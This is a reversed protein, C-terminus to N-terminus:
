NCDPLNHGAYYSLGYRWSRNDRPICTVSNMRWFARPSVTRDLVPFTQWAIRVVGVTVGIAILAIAFERRGFFELAGCLIAFLLFPLVFGLPYHVSTRSLGNLLAQPLIDQVTPMLWLLSACAALALATIRSRVQAEALAIGILAALPPLLPLLYGPLKNLAISFLVLGWLFWALLFRNSRRSLLFLLPTWPFFAALLVPVYFWVPRVHVLSPSVIRAFHHKWFFEDIFASGNRATVVVYWPAAIVLASGLVIMLDRLRHRMWGLAPVFLALPVLGKALVALGLLIGALWVSGRSYPIPPLLLLMCAGFTAALPLDPVAVHSYALWGASTGLVITSFCAARQGFERRLVFFFFVLFAVSMLAVPLRPALDENLGGKLGTGIMWYLLPPKEFWAEGWLRPTIWDGSEAMARGIAAYRPEDPGLVGTRALGFFYLFYLAAACLLLLIGPAARKM